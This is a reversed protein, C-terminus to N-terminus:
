AGSDISQQNNGSSRVKVDNGSNPNSACFLSDARAAAM